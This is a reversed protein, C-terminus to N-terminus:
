RRWAWTPAGSWRTWCSRRTPAALGRRPLRVKEFGRAHGAARDLGAQRAFRRNGDMIFAVHRPAGGARLVACLLRRLRRALSTGDRRREQEALSATLIPIPPAAGSM